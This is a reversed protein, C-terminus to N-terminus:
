IAEPGAIKRATQLMGMLGGGSTWQSHDQRVWGRSMGVEIDSSVLQTDRFKAKEENGMVPCQGKCSALLPSYKFLCAMSPMCAGDSGSM